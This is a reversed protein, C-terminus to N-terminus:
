GKEVQNLMKVLSFIAVALLCKVADGLEGSLFNRRMRHDDKPQGIAPDIEARRRFCQRQKQEEHYTQDKSYWSPMRLNTGAIWKRGRYGRDLVAPTPRIGGAVKRVREVQALAPALTDGDYQYGTFNKM